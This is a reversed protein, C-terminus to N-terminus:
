RAIIRYFRTSRPLATEIYTQTAGDGVTQHVTQWDPLHLNDSAQLEYTFGPETMWGIQMGGGAATTIQLTPSDPQATVNSSGPTTSDLVQRGSGTGQIVAGFSQDPGTGSYAVHDVVAPSGNQDRTLFLSGSEANLRFNTHISGPATEATEGDAWLLLNGDHSRRHDGDASVSPAHSQHPWSIRHLEIFHDVLDGKRQKRWPGGCRSLRSGRQLQQIWDFIM